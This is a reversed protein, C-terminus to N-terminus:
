GIFGIFLSPWWTVSVPSSSSEPSVRYRNRTLLEESWGNKVKAVDFLQNFNTNENRRWLSNIAKVKCLPAILLGIRRSFLLPPPATPAPSTRLDSSPDAPHHCRLRSICRYSWMHGLSRFCDPWAWSLAARWLRPSSDGFSVNVSPPPSESAIAETCRSGDALLRPDALGLSRGDAWGDIPSVRWCCSASVRGARAAAALRM